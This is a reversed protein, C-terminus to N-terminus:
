NAHDKRAFTPLTPNELCRVADVLTMKEHWISVSLKLSLNKKGQSTKRVM